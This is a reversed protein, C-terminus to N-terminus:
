SENKEAQHKMYEDLDRIRVYWLKGRKQAPLKGLNILNRLYDQSYNSFQAAERLPVLDEQNFAAASRKRLRQLSDELRKMVIQEMERLDSNAMAEDIMAPSLPKGSEVRRLMKDFPDDAVELAHYYIDRDSKQVGKIAINVFGTGILMFNLLIRGVRGNGDQFPHVTEFFVHSGAALTLPDYQGEALKRNIWGVFVPMTQGIFQENLPTFTSQAVEVPGSRFEGIPHNHIGMQREYRMLLTHIQKIDATRLRFEREKYLNNAYEYLTSASEYYGLIAAMKESSTRQNRELVDVLEKRNAFIGEIAISNRIEEKFLTYWESNSVAIFQDTEKRLKEFAAKLGQSNMSSM